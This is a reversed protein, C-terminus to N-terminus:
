FCDLASINALADASGREMWRVANEKDWRVAEIWSGMDAPATIQVVRVDSPTVPRHSFRTWFPKALLPLVVGPLKPLVHLALIETAGGEVAAFVPLPNLLGGDAYWRGDIRVPLKAMPVACSAALHAATVAGDRVTVAKMRLLDTVVVAYELHLPHKTLRAIVQPLNRLGVEDPTLWRACLADPTEGSAIAYGNLSGVSCGVVLDPQFRNALVRWAGAQWAGFMGGGSLVLAKKALELTAEERRSVFDRSCTM